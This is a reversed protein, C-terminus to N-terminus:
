NPRVFVITRTWGVLVYQPVVRGNENGPELIEPYNGVVAGSEDLLIRCLFHDPSLVGNVRIGANPNEVLQLRYRTTVGKKKAYKSLDAAPSEDLLAVLTPSSRRLVASHLKYRRTHTIIVLVDGDNFHPFENESGPMTAKPPTTRHPAPMGYYKTNLNYHERRSM